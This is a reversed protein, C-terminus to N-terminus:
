LYKCPETYCKMKSWSVPYALPQITYDLYWGGQFHIFVQLTKFFVNQDAFPCFIAAIIMVSKSDVLHEVMEKM